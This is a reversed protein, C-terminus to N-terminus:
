QEIRYVRVSPTDHVLNYNGAGACSRYLRPVFSDSYDGEGGFWIAVVNMKLDVLERDLILYLNSAEPRGGGRTDESAM